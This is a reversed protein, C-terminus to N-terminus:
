SAKKFLRRFFGVDDSGGRGGGPTHTDKANIDPKVGVSEWAKELKPVDEVRNLKKAADITHQAFQAFSPNEGAMKRAEFWVHGPGEWAKGGVDLAYNVFARNPIGSNYHVGGNDGWTKVYDKMHGPQPDKGIAPNDYATGPNKMDRLARANKVNEKWIGEGMLWSGKDATQGRAYQEVLAGFVDSHSENLAGAQGWYRLNAEMETVGHTVEHAAVDRLVFTKFPSDPGPRGYTMQKGDWFANEYNKGYNVTSVYKMGKGDIGNRGYEKVYFDKIQGTFDYANDVEVNGTPKEGEFRAKEGPQTQRGKADYVERAGQFDQGVRPQIGGPQNQMEITKNRTNIFDSANAKNRAALEQLMYPPIVGYGHPHGGHRPMAVVDSTTIGFADSIKSGVRDYMGAKAENFGALRPSAMVRDTLKAGVKYGVVALAGDVLFMGGANGIQSTAADLDRMSTAAGVQKYGDVIPKSAEYMFYAGIAGAAIKGAPGGEPLVTKLAVALGAGMGVATLAEGPHKVNHVVANLVGEPVKALGDLTAMGYRTFSNEPAKDFTMLDKHQAGPQAGAMELAVKNILADGDGQSAKMENSRHLQDTPQEM